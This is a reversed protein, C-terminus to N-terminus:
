RQRSVNSSRRSGPSSPTGCRITTDRVEPLESIDKANRLATSSAISEIAPQSINGSSNLKMLCPMGSLLVANRVIGRWFGEMSDPSASGHTRSWSPEGSAHGHRIVNRASLAGRASRAQPQLSLPARVSRATGFASWWSRPRMKWCALTASRGNLSVVSLLFPHMSFRHKASACSAHNCCLHCQDGARIQREERTMRSMQFMEM